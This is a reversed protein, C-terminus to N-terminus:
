VCGNAVEQVYQDWELEAPSRPRRNEGRTKAAHCGGCLAQLNAEDYPDGGGGLKLPRVHDCENAYRRCMACRWRAADLVRRRVAEWRRRDLKQHHKSM